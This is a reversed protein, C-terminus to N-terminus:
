RDFECSCQCNAIEDAGVSGSPDGPWLLGNSFRSGFPVKEGNMAAHQSRPNGSNVTWSKFKVGARGAGRAAGHNAAQTVKTRALQPARADVAVDFIHGVDDRINPETRRFVAAIASRTVNNIGEAAFRSNQRYYDVLEAPDFEIGFQDAVRQAFEDATFIGLKMMDEALERNWRDDDFIDPVTLADRKAKPAAALVVQRQRRFFRKLESEWKRVHAARVRPFEPDFGKAGSNGTERNGPLAPKSAGPLGLDKPPPASDRPSAQGGILVNLPTALEDADGEHRPMNNRSRAENPTMWPRGVATSFATTQEVFSGRLKEALNFEVYINASDRFAPILQLGLDEAIMTLWPGLCDQYLNRHQEEINSFTAHELIGVMPLPIHYARAVEERTFKRGEIYQSDNASFTVPKWVMGDELIATRGSTAAGSYLAEFEAQFRERAPDSWDPAAEPREIVGGMRAANSWFQERYLGAAEDEAVERRLTELPSLGVLEDDPNPGRLHVVLSADLELPPKGPFRVIYGTPELFGVVQVFRPPIRILGIPDVPRIKLWFANFWIGLDVITSEILRYRSTRLSPRGILTPLPHDTLRERDTDDIRRFSHLGLQAINRALFEVVTRVNPQTRYIASYDLTRLEYITLSSALNRARPEPTFAALAGESQIM